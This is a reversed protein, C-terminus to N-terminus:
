MKNEKLVDALNIKGSGAGVLTVQTEAGQGIWTIMEITTEDDLNIVVMLRVFGNESGEVEIGHKECYGHVLYFFKSIKYIREQEEESAARNETANPNDTFFKHEKVYRKLWSIYEPKLTSYLSELYGEVFSKM